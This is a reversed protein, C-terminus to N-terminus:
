GRHPRLASHMDKQGTSGLSKSIQFRFDRLHSPRSISNFSFSCHIVVLKSVRHSSFISLGGEVHHVVFAGATASLAARLMEHRSIRHANRRKLRQPPLRVGWLRALLYPLM